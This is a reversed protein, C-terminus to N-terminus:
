DKRLELDKSDDEVLDYYVIDMLGGTLEDAWHIKVPMGIYTDKYDIEPSLEATFTTDSGDQQILVIPRELVEGTEPDKLYTITFSAVRGTERLDVWRDPKVMCKGCVIRPPFFVRNCSSCQLGIVKKEKLKDLFPKFHTINFKYKYNSLYWSGPVTRTRVYDKKIYNMSKRLTRKSM